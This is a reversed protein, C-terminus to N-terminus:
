LQEKISERILRQLEWKADSIGANYNGMMHTGGFGMVVDKVVQLIRMKVKEEAEMLLIADAAAVDQENM